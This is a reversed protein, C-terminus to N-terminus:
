LLNISEIREKAIQFYEKNLEIGVFDRNTNKCAVGTSGSGMCFDLVTDGENSYTKILWELLPVPKQTPHLGTERKFLQYTLPYRLGTENIVAQEPNYKGYNSSPTHSPTVKYPTGERMQPNYLTGKECFVAINEHARLPKRKSNLFDTGKPKLWILDYRFWKLNSMVLTSFFPESGFMIIAAGPKIVRKLGKWMKDLDLVTDWKNKTTGYPPDCLVLDISKDPIGGGDCLEKLCDNNILKNM